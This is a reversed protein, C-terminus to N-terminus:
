RTISWGHPSDCVPTLGCVQAYAICAIDILRSSDFSMPAMNQLLSFADVSDVTALLAQAPCEASCRLGCMARMHLRCRWAANWCRAGTCLHRGAGAGCPVPQIRVAGLLVPGVRAPLNGAAALQRVPVPVVAHVRGGCARGAQGPAGGAAPLQGGCPAQVGAPGGTPGPAARRSIRLTFSNLKSCGPAQVLGTVQPALMQLSFYGPLLDEVIVTLSWFADEEDMFLLLCGAVFNMGQAFASALM